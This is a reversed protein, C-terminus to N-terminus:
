FLPEERPPASSGYSGRWASRATSAFASAAIPLAYGRVVMIGVFFFMVAVVHGFSRQGRLLRNTIHPYRIRSVILLAVLIGFFPLVNQLLRDIDAKWSNADPDQRLTFSMIAFGAVVAAAAPSPLGSFYLHEDNDSAEVNFQALRLAGCAAFAAAIIWVAQNHVLTFASM